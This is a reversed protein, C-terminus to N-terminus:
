PADHPSAVAYHESPAFLEIRGTAFDSFEDEGILICRNSAALEKAHKTFRSNTIVAWSACGWHQSGAVVEQVAKNGVVDFYGKAQVAMRQQGVIVIIDVGQDSSARENTRKADIGLACFIEVLYNEWEDGRMAKWNRQLLAERHLRAATILASRQFEASATLRSRESQLAQLRQNQAIWREAVDKLYIKAVTADTEAQAMATPLMADNPHYLLVSLITAVSAAIIALSLLAVSLSGAVLDVIVFSLVGVAVPGALLVGTRWLNYSAAPARLCRALRLYNRWWSTKRACKACDFREATLRTVDDKLQEIEDSISAFKAEPTAATPM